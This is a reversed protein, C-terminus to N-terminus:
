YPFLQLTAFVWTIGKGSYKRLSTPLIAADSIELPIHYSSNFWKRFNEQWPIRERLCESPNSPFIDQKQSLTYLHPNSISFTILVLEM